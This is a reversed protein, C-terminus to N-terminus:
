ILFTQYLVRYASLQFELVYFRYDSAISVMPTRLSEDAIFLHLLFYFQDGSLIM